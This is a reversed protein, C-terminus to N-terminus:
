ESSSSRSGAWWPRCSSASRPRRPSWTTFVMYYGLFRGLAAHRERNKTIGGFPDNQASRCMTGRTSSDRWLSPTRRSQSDPRHDKSKRHLAGRREPHGNVSSRHANVTSQQFVFPPTGSETCIFQAGGQSEEREISYYLRVQCLSRMQSFPVTLSVHFLGRSPARDAM